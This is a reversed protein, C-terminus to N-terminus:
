SVLIFLFTERVAVLAGQALCIATTRSSSSPRSHKMESRESLRSGQGRVSESRKVESESGLFNSDNFFYDQFNVEQEDGVREGTSWDGTNWHAGISPMNAGQRRGNPRASSTSMSTNDDFEDGEEWQFENHFRERPSTMPDENIYRVGSRVGRGSYYQDWDIPGAAGQQQQQEVVVAAAKKNAQLLQAIADKSSELSNIMESLVSMKSDLDRSEARSSSVIIIFLEKVFCLFTFVCLCVTVSSSGPIFDLSIECCHM